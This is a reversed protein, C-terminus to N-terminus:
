RGRAVLRVRGVAHEDTRWRPPSEDAAQRRHAEQLLPNSHRYDVVGRATRFRMRAGYLLELLEGLEGVARTQWAAGGADNVNTM